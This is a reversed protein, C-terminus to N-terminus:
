FSQKVERKKNQIHSNDPTNNTTDIITENESHKTEIISQNELHKIEQTNKQDHIHVFFQSSWLPRWM